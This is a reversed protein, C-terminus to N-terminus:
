LLAEGAAVLTNWTSAPLSSHAAKPKRMGGQMGTTYFHQQTRVLTKRNGPAPSRNAAPKRAASTAPRGSRSQARRPQRAPAATSCTGLQCGARGSPDQQHKRAWARVCLCMIHEDHKLLLTEVMSALSRIMLHSHQMSYNLQWCYSQMETMHVHM